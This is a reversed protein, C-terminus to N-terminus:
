NPRVCRSQSIGRKGIMPKEFVGSPTCHIRNQRSPGAQPRSRWDGGSESAAFRGALARADFINGGDFANAVVLEDTVAQDDPQAARAVARLGDKRRLGQDGRELAHADRNRM